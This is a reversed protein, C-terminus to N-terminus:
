SEGLRRLTVDYQQRIEDFARLMARDDEEPDPKIPSLLFGGEAPVLNLRDGADADLQEAVNPPIRIYLGDEDARVTLLYEPM